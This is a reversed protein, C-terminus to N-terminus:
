FGWAKALAQIGPAIDEEAIGAYGVLVYRWDQPQPGSWYRATPYVNVSATKAAAILESESRGDTTQVLAFLSSAGPIISVHDGMYRQLAELLAKRKRQVATRMKRIHTRWHDDRMFVAMAAQTQWPVQPHSGWESERWRVMLQPPLVAYSLAVSPSFSNSFTGITIVRGSKDMAGLPAIRGTGSQYEWGYEDDLLYGGTQEAWDVLNRRLEASMTCNSPFQCTPTTFAFTAGELYPRIFDWRSDDRIPLSVTKFGLRNLKSRVEDYGPEEMAFLTSRSDFLTMIADILDRTTPMVLIQDSTCPLGYEGAVYRSIQVRLESLGQNDNYLCAQEAGKSFFVERSIRAWITYPFLSPDAADYCFDYRAAHTENRERNAALHELAQEYERTFQSTRRTSPANVQCIIYGSGRRAQVYGEETLKQYALEITTNSVGLDRACERISPLKTGKPYVGEEIGRAMQEYVQQYFPEPSNRDIYPM